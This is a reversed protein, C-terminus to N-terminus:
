SSPPFVLKVAEAGAGREVEVRQLESLRQQDELLKLKLM